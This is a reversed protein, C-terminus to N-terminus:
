DQFLYMSKIDLILNKTFKKFISQSLIISTLEVLVSQAIVNKESIERLFYLFDLISVEM